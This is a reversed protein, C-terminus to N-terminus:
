KNSSVTNERRVRSRDVSRGGICIGDALHGRNRQKRRRTRNASIQLERDVSFLCRARARMKRGIESTTLHWALTQRLPLLPVPNKPKLFVGGGVILRSGAGLRSDRKCFRGNVCHTQDSPVRRAQPNCFRIANVVEIAISQNCPCASRGQPQPERQRAVVPATPLADRLPVLLGPVTSVADDLAPAAMSCKLNGSCDSCCRKLAM